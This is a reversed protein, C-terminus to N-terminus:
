WTWISHRVASRPKEECWIGSEEGQQGTLEPDRAIQYRSKLLGGRDQELDIEPKNYNVGRHVIILIVLVDTSPPKQTDLNQPLPKTIVSNSVRPSVIGINARSNERAGRLDLSNLLSWSDRQKRLM